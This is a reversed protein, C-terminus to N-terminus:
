ETAPAMHRTRLARGIVMALVLGAVGASIEIILTAFPIELLKIGSLVLV